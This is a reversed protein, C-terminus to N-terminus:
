EDDMISHLFLIQSKLQEIASVKDHLWDELVPMSEVGRELKRTDKRFESSMKYMNDIESCIDKMDANLRTKAAVLDDAARQVKLNSNSLEPILIERQDSHAPFNNVEM